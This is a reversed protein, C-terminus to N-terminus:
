LTLVKGTALVDGTPAGTPSGGPPEDSIALIGGDLAAILEPSLVLESVQGEFLVGLSVPAAEGVILWLELVRGARASGAAREVRLTGGVPDFRAMMVLSSDHAAIEARYAPGTPTDPATLLGINVVVFLLAAVALGGLVAPIFGIRQLFTPRAEGFLKVDINDRVSRSPVVGPIGETLAVLDRAWRAYESRLAPDVVLRAEFAKEETPTLMGLAYEAALAIDDERDTEDTM